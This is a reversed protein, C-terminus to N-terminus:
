LSLNKFFIGITFCLQMNCLGQYFCTFHDFKVEVIMSLVFFFSFLHFLVLQTGGGWFFFKTQNPIIFGRMTKSVKKGM